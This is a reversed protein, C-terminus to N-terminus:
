KTQRRRVPSKKLVQSLKSDRKVFQSYYTTKEKPTMNKPTKMVKRTFEKPNKQISSLVRTLASKVIEQNKFDYVLTTTGDGNEKFAFGIGYRELEKKFASLNVENTLFEQIDKRSSTALFTNWKAEGSFVRNAQHKELLNFATRSALYLGKLLFEGTVLGARTVQAVVREEDM